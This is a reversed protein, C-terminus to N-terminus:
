ESSALYRYKKRRLKGHPTLTKLRCNGNAGAGHGWYIKAKDKVHLRKYPALTFMLLTSPSWRLAPLTVSSQRQVLLTVAM